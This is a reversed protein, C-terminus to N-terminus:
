NYKDFKNIIFNMNSIVKHVFSLSFDRFWLAGPNGNFRIM